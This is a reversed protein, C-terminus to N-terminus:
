FSGWNSIQNIYNISYAKNTENLNSYENQILDGIGGTLIVRGWISNIYFYWYSSTTDNSIDTYSVAILEDPNPYKGYQSYIYQGITETTDNPVIDSTIIYNEVVKLSPGAPGTAGIDGKPLVFNFIADIDSGSNTISPIEGSTVTGIKITGAKGRLSAKYEWQLDTNLQYLSGTESNLYYDGELANEIVQNLSDNNIQIGSFIESGKPIGFTLQVNDRLSNDIEVFAENKISITQVEKISITPSNGTIDALLFYKLYENLESTIIEISDLEEKNILTYVKKWLTNNYTTSYKNLDKQKNTNYEESDKEGYSIFVLDGPFITSDQNLNLDEELDVKSSFIKAVQFDKGYRGGYFSNMM